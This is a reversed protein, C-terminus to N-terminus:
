KCSTNSAQTPNTLTIGGLRNADEVADMDDKGAATDCSSLNCTCPNMMLTFDCDFYDPQSTDWTVNDAALSNGGQNWVDIGPNTSGNTSEQNSSCVVTNPDSGSNGSLDVSANGTQNVGVYNYQFTSDIVTATGASALLGTDANQVTGVLNLTPGGVGGIDELDIGTGAMCQITAPTAANGNGNSGLTVTANGNAYVGVTDVKFPQAKPDTCSNFGVGALPAAGLVPEDEVDFTCQDEADVDQIAQYSIV